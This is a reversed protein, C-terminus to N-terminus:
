SMNQINRYLGLSISINNKEARNEVSRQHYFNIKHWCEGHYLMEVYEEDLGVVEVDLVDNM